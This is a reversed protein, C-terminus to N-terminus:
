ANARELLIVPIERDTKEKYDHFTPYLAAQQEYLREREEGQTIVANASFKESGVEVTVKPNAALNYYWDPNTPAGGKSAIIVLRDGDKTYAVPNVREKGSKAGTTTLLLLEMQAFRGSVKGANKRFEEIIAQNFDSM